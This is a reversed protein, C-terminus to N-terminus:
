QKSLAISVYLELAEQKCRAHVITYMHLHIFKYHVFKESCSWSGRNSASFAIFAIQQKMPLVRNAYFLRLAAM